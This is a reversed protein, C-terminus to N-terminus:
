EDEDGGFDEEEEDPELVSNEYERQNYRAMCPTLWECNKCDGRITNPPLEEANSNVYGFCKPKLPCKVRFCLGCAIAKHSMKCEESM